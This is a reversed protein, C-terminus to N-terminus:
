RETKSSALHHLIEPLSYVVIRLNGQDAIAIYRGTPDIAIGDASDHDGVFGMVFKPPTRELDFVAIRSNEVDVAFLYDGLVALGEVDGAFTDVGFRWPPGLPAGSRRDVIIIEGTGENAIFLRDKYVALSEPEKLLPRQSQPEFLPMNFNVDRQGNPLYRYIRSTGKDSVDLAGDDDVALGQLSTYEGNLPRWLADACRPTAAPCDSLVLTRDALVKGHQDFVQIRRNGQDIVYILGRKDVAIGQVQHYITTTPLKIVTDHSFEGAAKGERGVIQLSQSQQDFRYIKFRANHTDGAILRGDLTFAVSDPENFQEPLNGRSGGLINVEALRREDPGLRVVKEVGRAYLSQPESNLKLKEILFDAIRKLEAQHAASSSGLAAIELAFFEKRLKRGSFGEFRGAVLSVVFEPKGARSLAVSHHEYQAVMQVKNIDRGAPLPWYKRPGAKDLQGERVALLQGPALAISHIARPAASVKASVGASFDLQAKGDFSERLRLFMGQQHLFLADDDFFTERYRREGTFAVDYHLIEKRNLLEPLKIRGDAFYLQEPRAQSWGNTAGLLCFLALALWRAKAYPGPGSLGGASPRHM